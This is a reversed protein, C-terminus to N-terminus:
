QRRGVADGPHPWPVCRYRLGNEERKPDGKAFHYKRAVKLAGEMAEAGSNCFFCTDAFSNAVLRDAFEMQGPINYLNSTHWVKGAQEQIKAVLHPHAHGLSNTAIGTAFDLSDDGM